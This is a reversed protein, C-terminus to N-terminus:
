RKSGIRAYKNGWNWANAFSRAIRMTTFSDSQDSYVLVKEVDKARIQGTKLMKDATPILKVGLNREDSFVTEAVAKEKNKISLKIKKGKIEIEIIM